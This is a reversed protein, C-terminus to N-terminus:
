GGAVFDFEARVSKGETDFTIKLRCPNAPDSFQYCDYFWATSRDSSLTKEFSERDAHKISQNNGQADIYSDPCGLKKLIEQKEMGAKHMEAFSQYLRYEKTTTCGVLSIVCVVALALAILKKM